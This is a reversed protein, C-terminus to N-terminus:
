QKFRRVTLKPSGQAATVSNLHATLRHALRSGCITNNTSGGSPPPGRASQLSEIGRSLSALNREIVAFSDAPADDPAPLTSSMSSPVASFVPGTVNSGTVRHQLAPGTVNSGTVRHQLAPSPAASPNNSPAASSGRWMEVYVNTDVSSGCGMRRRQELLRDMTYPIPSGKIESIVPFSPSSEITTPASAVSAPPSGNVPPDVLPPRSDTRIYTTPLTQTYPPSLVVAAARDQGCRPNTTYNTTTSLTSGDEFTVINSTRFSEFSPPQSRSNQCSQFIREEQSKSLVIPPKPAFTSPAPGISLPSSPPSNNASSLTTFTTEKSNGDLTLSTPDPWEKSCLASGSCSKCNNSSSLIASSSLTVLQEQQSPLDQSSEFKSRRPAPKYTRSVHFVKEKSRRGLSFGFAKKASHRTLSGGVYSDDANKQQPDKLDHHLHHHLRSDPSSLVPASPSQHLLIASSFGGPDKCEEKDMMRHLIRNKSYIFAQMGLVIVLAIAMLVVVIVLALVIATTWGSRLLKSIELQPLGAVTGGSISTAEVEAIDNPLLSSNNPKQSSSHSAQSSNNPTQSNNNPTHSNNNPTHSSNNPLQSVDPLQSSNDSLQRSDPMKSINNLPQSSNKILQSKNASQSSNNNNSIQNRSANAQENEWPLYHEYDYESFDYFNVYDPYNRPISDRGGPGLDDYFFNDNSNMAFNSPRNFRETTNENELKRGNKKRKKKNKRNKKRKKRRDNETTSSHTGRSNQNALPGVAMRDPPGVAMHDPPSVAMRDPPGVAMHEPPGVAMQEPPGVAMRDPPGVAVHDPPGVAVHEPPGVAMLDPPGVALHDPPGVAVHAFPGGHEKGKALYEAPNDCTTDMFEYCPIIVYLPRVCESCSICTGTKVNFYEVGRRCHAAVSSSYGSCIVMLVLVFASFRPKSWSFRPSSRYRISNENGCSASLNEMGSIVTSVYCKKPCDRSIFSHSADPHTRPQFSLMLLHNLKRTANSRMSRSNSTKTDISHQRSPRDGPSSGGAAAGADRLM